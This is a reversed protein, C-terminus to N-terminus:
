RTKELHHKYQTDDALGASRFAQRREACKNCRGCHLGDVPALCCFTLGLPLRRGLDMVQRTDLQAFPRLLGVRGGTARAVVSELDAFFEPRADGFPNTGLVALALWEIGHLRCWVAPKVLLLLNRGPLYVASDPSRADPVDRGTVSWHGEYLDAVPMELVVLEALRPAAMAALLREVARFEEAEWALHSRVYFPQVGHGQGLLYGLLIASDLGGSLLMGVNM